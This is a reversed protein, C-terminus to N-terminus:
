APNAEDVGRTEIDRWAPGSSGPRSGHPTINSKGYPKVLKARREAGRMYSAPTEETM